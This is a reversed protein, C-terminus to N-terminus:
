GPGKIILPVYAVKVFELVAFAIVLGVLAIWSWYLFALVLGGFFILHQVGNIM